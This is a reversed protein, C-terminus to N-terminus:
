LGEEIAMHHDGIGILPDIDKGVGTCTWEGDGNKGRLDVFPIKPVSGKLNINSGNHPQPTM